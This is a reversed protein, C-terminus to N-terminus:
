GGAGTTPAGRGIANAALAVARELAGGAAAIAPIMIWLGPAVILAKLQSVAARPGFLKVLVTSLFFTGLCLLALIAVGVIRDGVHLGPLRQARHGTAGVEQVDRVGLQAGIVVHLVDVAVTPAKDGHHRSAALFVGLEALPDLGVGRVPLEDPVPGIGTM